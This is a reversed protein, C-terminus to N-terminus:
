RFINKKYQEYEINLKQVIIKFATVYYKLCNFKMKYFSVHLIGIRIGYRGVM